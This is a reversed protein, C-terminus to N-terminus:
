EYELILKEPFKSLDSSLDKLVKNKSFCTNWVIKAMNICIHVFYAHIKNELFHMIFIKLFSTHKIWSKIKFVIVFNYGDPPRVFWKYLSAM